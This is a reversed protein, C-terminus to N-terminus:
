QVPMKLKTVYNLLTKKENPCEGKIVADLLLQLVCGVAPGAHIGSAVIDNGDIALMSVKYCANTDLLYRTRQIVTEDAMHLSLYDFILHKDLRNLLWLLDTDTDKPYHNCLLLQTICNITCKDMRLRRLVTEAIDVSCGSALFLAAFRVHPTAPIRSLLSFDSCHSLEPLVVHIVNKYENVIRCADRGCLLKQVEVSIREMAVRTLTPSLRLLSSSTDDDLSFGLVSAFRLARLIRLSDESFRRDAEGVCRIVGRRIDKQGGYPDVLGVTPHYAMANITFDRRQLDELLSPTFAVWDPHRGDSYDGDVRYTTIELPMDELIVTLTGHQLGTKICRCAAFVDQMEDPTASTTIDWDQPAKGMLSDRVCGGVAYAEYGAENLKQIAHLVADPLANFM